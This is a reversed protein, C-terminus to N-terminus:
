SGPAVEHKVANKGSQKVAYMLTDAYHVLQDVPLWPAQLTVAGISFSVPYGERRMTEDLVRHVKGVVIQTAEPGAEPFLLAFEDGGLRAVIDMSRVTHVLVEAIHRLLQDGASHGRDDNIAKFGDVDLYAVGLPHGNRRARSIEREALEYFARANGVGTLSDVRALEKERALAANLAAVTRSLRAMTLAAVGFLGLRALANWLPVLLSAYPEGALRNAAFWVLASLAALLLGANRGAYWSVLTVTLVYFLAFSLEWGTRYDIAGLVLTLLVGVGTVFVPSRRALYRDLKELIM